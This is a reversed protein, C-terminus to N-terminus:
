AGDDGGLDVATASVVEEVTTMGQMVKYWGYERMPLYGDKLAQVKWEAQPTGKVIMDQLAETLITVEYIALRGAYGTNRCKDCGM